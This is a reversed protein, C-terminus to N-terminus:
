ARLFPTGMEVKRWQLDGSQTPVSGPPGLGAHSFPPGESFVPWAAGKRGKGKAGLSWVGLNKSPELHIGQAGTAPYRPVM